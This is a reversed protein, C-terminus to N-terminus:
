IKTPNIGMADAIRRGCAVMASNKEHSPLSDLPTSPDNVCQFESIETFEYMSDSAAIWFIKVDEEKEARLLEPLENNRIFESSLFNPTVILIAAKASELAIKIEVKWDDGPKITTDDWFEIINNSIIPSMVNKLDDLFTKDKRSYSIFLRDRNNDTKIEGSELDDDASKDTTQKYRDKLLEQRGSGKEAVQGHGNPKSKVDQRAPVSRKIAARAIETALEAIRPRTGADQLLFALERWDRHQREFLRAAVMDKARRAADELVDAELLYIPLILDDRGAAREYDLFAQAENRCFDSEFFSPTLIPIFLQASELAQDLKKTWRDGLQIDEVDQFIQFPRGTRARIAKELADRLWSIGGELYEDDFRTYSLFAQPADERSQGMDAM